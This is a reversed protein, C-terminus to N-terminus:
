FRRRGRKVFAKYVLIKIRQGPLYVLMVLYVNFGKRFPKLSQGCGAGQVFKLEIFCTDVVREGDTKRPPTSYPM